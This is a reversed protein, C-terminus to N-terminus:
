HVVECRNKWWPAREREEQGYTSKQPNMFYMNWTSTALFPTMLQPFPSNQINPCWVANWAACTLVTLSFSLSFSLHLSFSNPIAWPASPSSFPWRGIRLRYSPRTVANFYVGTPTNPSPRSQVITERDRCSVASTLSVRRWQRSDFCEASYLKRPVGAVPDCSDIDLTACWFNQNLMIKEM